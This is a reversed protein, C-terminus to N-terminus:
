YTTRHLLQRVLQVTVSNHSDCFEAAAHINSDESDNGDKYFATASSLQTINQQTYTHEMKPMLSHLVQFFLM